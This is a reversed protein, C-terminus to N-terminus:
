DTGREWSGAFARSNRPHDRTPPAFDRCGCVPHRLFWDIAFEDRPAFGLDAPFICPFLGFVPDLLLWIASKRSSGPNEATIERLRIVPFRQAVLLTKQGPM